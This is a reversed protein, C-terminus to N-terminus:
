RSNQASRHRRTLRRTLPAALPNDKKRTRQLMKSLWVEAEPKGYGM